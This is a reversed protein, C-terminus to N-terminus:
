LRMGKRALSFPSLLNREWKASVSAACTRNTAFGLFFEFFITLRSFLVFVIPFFQGHAKKITGAIDDLFGYELTHKAATDTLIKKVIIKWDSSVFLLDREFRSGGILRQFM